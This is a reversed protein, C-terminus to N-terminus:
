DFRDMKHITKDMLILYNCKLKRRFSSKDLDNCREFALERSRFVGNSSNVSPSVPLVGSIEAAGSGFCLFLRFRRDALLQFIARGLQFSRHRVATQALHPPIANRAPDLARTAPLVYFAKVHYAQM